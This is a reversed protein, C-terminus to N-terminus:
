GLSTGPGVIIKHDPLYPLRGSHPALLFRGDHSASRASPLSASVWADGDDAAFVELAARASSRTAELNGPLDLGTFETDSYFAEDRRRLLLRYRARDAEGTQQDALGRDIQNSLDAARVYLDALRKEKAIRDKLRSVILKANNWDQRAVLDRAQLLLDVGERRATELQQLDRRILEAVSANYRLGAATAAM